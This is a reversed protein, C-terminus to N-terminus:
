GPNRRQERYLERVGLLFEDYYGDRFDPFSWAFSQFRQKFFFLTLDAYIGKSLYIKQGGFKTSALVVKNYDLYGPDLNIRRRSDQAYLQEIEITRIKIDALAGPSILTALSVFTRILGPGMEADYYQSVTFPIPQSILDIPGFAQQVTTLLSERQDFAPASLIAIFLKVPDPELSTVKDNVVM